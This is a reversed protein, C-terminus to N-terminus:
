TVFDTIAPIVATPAEEMLLFAQTNREVGPSGVGNKRM